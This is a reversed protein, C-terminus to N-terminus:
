PLVERMFITSENGGFIGFTATASPDDDYINGDGGADVGDWDFELWHEVLPDTDLDYVLNATGVAGPAALVIPNAPDPQGAQVTGAGAAALGLSNTLNAANYTTCNDDVATNFGIGDFEQVQLPIALPIFESGFANLLRMRGFRVETMGLNNLDVGDGVIAIATGGASTDNDDNSPSIATVTSNTPVQLPMNWALAVDIVAEGTTGNDFNTVFSADNFDYVPGALGNRLPLSDTNDINTADMADDSLTAFDGQYNETRGGDTNQAELTLSAIFPQRAYTYEVIQTAGCGATNLAPTIIASTIAYQAPHFRGITASTGAVDEGSGLYDTDSAAITLAGVEDWSTTTTSSGDTFDATSTSLSGDSAGAPEVVTPTLTATAATDENGFNPTIANNTLLDSFADPAAYNFNDPIGDNDADDSQQWVVAELVMDFDEGADAFINSGETVTSEGPNGAVSMRIAFPRVVFPNSSGSTGSMLDNPDTINYIAHLSIQGADPYNLVLNTTANAGFVLDVPTYSATGVIGNDDNTAINTGNINVRVGNCTASDNCEAGLDITRTAGNPFGPVCVAPDNDAARVAQLSITQANPAVDSPKGAIQNNINSFLFGAREVILTPDELEGFTGDFVAFNVPAAAPAVEFHSFALEISQENGNFSYSAIGDNPTLDNLIGNGTFLSWTGLNTSTALDIVTGAPPVIANHASDHATITIITPACTIGIGSHLISYHDLQELCTSISGVDSAVTPPYNIVVDDGIEITDGGILAGTITSDDDIEINGSQPGYVVGTFDLNNGDMEFEAGPYLYVVLDNADGGNNVTLNTGNNNTRFRDNIYLRVSGSVNITVNAQNIDLRNIFYLGESFNITSGGLAQLTNIMFPGGGVFNATEGASVFITNYSALVNSNITNGITPDPISIIATGTAPFTDPQINPLGQNANIVDGVNFTVDLANGNNNGQEVPQPGAGVNITVNNDIELDDGSSYLPFTNPIIGCSSTSTPCAHVDTSDAAIQASTQVENYIRVEDFSGNASNRTMFNVIYSSRNDGIYLTNLNGLTNGINNTLANAPMFTGTVPSGNVYIQMTDNPLDWTVAIHVWQDAPINNVNSILRVDNDSSDELGFVLSGDNQLTLHFYKNGGSRSADFLMRDDGGVWPNNSKYWFSITGSNNGIDNIDVGTDIADRSGVTSNDPIEAYGCIVPINAIVSDVDNPTANGLASGNNGNGTADIVPGWTPEDLMYYALPSPPPPPGAVTPAIAILLHALRNPNRDLTQQMTTAAPPSVAKYSMAGAATNVNADWVETQGGGQTFNGDDGAGVVDIVWAGDTLTTIGTTISRGSSTTNGNVAEPAAQLAGSVSIAGANVENVNGQLQLDITYTGAAPLSADDLRYMYVRMRRGGTAISATDIFLMDTGNYTLSDVNDGSQSSSEEIAIGVILMRDAAAGITHSWSLNDTNTANSDSGADFLIAAVSTQYFLLLGALSLIKVFARLM